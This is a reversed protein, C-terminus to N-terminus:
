MGRLRAPRGPNEEETVLMDFDRYSTTTALSGGLDTIENRGGRRSLRRV